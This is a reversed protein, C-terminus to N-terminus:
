HALSQLQPSSGKQPYLDFRKEEPDIESPPNRFPESSPSLRQAMTRNLLLNRPSYVLEGSYYLIRLQKGM